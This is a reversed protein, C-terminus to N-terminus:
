RLTGLTRAAERFTEVAPTPRRTLAPDNAFDITFLGFRGNYGHSWEFNDILSWHLYGIVNAGDARARDLAYLHARLFDPRLDGHADALGNETVFLPWGSTRGACSCATSARPTSRGASTARPAGPRRRRSTTSTASSTAWPSSARTTTSASSTSAARSRPSPSTSRPARAPAERAAPGDRGRRPVAPQLLRRRRARRLPRRSAVFGSRLRARQPRHRRPDRPRRRRRGEHRRRAAGATM